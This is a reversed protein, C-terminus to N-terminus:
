GVAPQMADRTAILRRTITNDLGFRLEAAETASVIIRLAEPRRGDDWLATALNNRATFTNPHDPGLVREHDLLTREILPIARALNGASKYASSLNSRTTLSTPHDHGLLREMEVLVQQYLNIARALNGSRHHALALNNRSALTEPHSPGLVRDMELITQELLPLAETLNGSDQYALALNNRSALTDPHRPGLVRARDAVSREFLSIARTLDGSSSYAGALNSRTTLTDPHDPGLVREQDTMTQEFLPIALQPMGAEKLSGALRNRSGLTNSDDSGFIRESHALIREYLSIAEHPRGASEYAGALWSAADLSHFAREKESTDFFANLAADAEEFRWSQALWAILVVQRETNNSQAAVLRGARGVWPETAKTPVNGVEDLAERHISMRLAITAENRDTGTNLREELVLRLNTPLEMLDSADGDLAAALADDLHGLLDLAPARTVPLSSLRRVAGGVADSAFEQQLVPLYSGLPGDNDIHDLDDPDFWAKIFDIALRLPEGRSGKLQFALRAMPEALEYYSRRRDLLDAFITTAVRLWGREVLDSVSKALSRQDIDLRAALAGVHLPHDVEALEAVILRQQPSIAALQEQYHPTLDDFRTLLLDVLSELQSVELSGSLLAWLRPQGGALHAVAKIRGLGRDTHLFDVLPGDGARKAIAALMDRGQEPTFPGLRTTTFYGYFPRAQDSLNRDLTTSTAILLMRCEHQLFHRLKQQGPEGLQHLVRDLNEVLVVITGNENARAILRAELEAEGGVRVLPPDCELREIIVALLHRYSAITWPDEPLWSLQLRRGDAILAKTRHYTLAILHTKGAGRPGVLLTHNRTDSTASADVRGMITALLHKRGVFIEELASAPMVSPTFRSLLTATM